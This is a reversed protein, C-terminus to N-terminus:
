KRFREPLTRQKEQVWLPAKRGDRKLCWRAMNFLLDSFRNLYQVTEPRLGDEGEEGRLRVLAREARRAISRSLHLAAAPASGGPLIFSTLEELEEGLRDCLSELREIHEAQAQWMGPYAGGKETAVE